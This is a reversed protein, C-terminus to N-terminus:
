DKLSPARHSNVKPFGHQKAGKKAMQGFIISAFHLVESPVKTLEESYGDFFSNLKVRSFAHYDPIDKKLNADGRKFEM